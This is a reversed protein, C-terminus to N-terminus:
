LLPAANDYRGYYVKPEFNGQVSQTKRNIMQRPCCLLMAPFVLSDSRVMIDNSLDFIYSRNVLHGIDPGVWEDKACTTGYQRQSSTERDEDLRGKIGHITTVNIKTIRHSGCLLGVTNVLKRFKNGIGLIITQNLHLKLWVHIRAIITLFGIYISVSYRDPM